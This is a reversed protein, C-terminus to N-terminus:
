RAMHGIVYCSVNSLFLKFVVSLVTEVVSSNYKCRYMCSALPM